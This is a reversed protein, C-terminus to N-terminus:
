LSIKLCPQWLFRSTLQWSMFCKREWWNKFFTLVWEDGDPCIGTTEDYKTCYIDPSYSFTGDRKKMPRRRRQNLFHWHFCTFPRHQQCKHQLFLECQQTRFEKLYRCCFVFSYILPSIIVFSYSASCSLKILFSVVWMYHHPKETQVSASLADSASPMKNVIFIRAACIRQASPNGKRIPRKLWMAPNGGHMVDNKKNSNEMALMEKSLLQQKKSCTLANLQYYSWWTLDAFLFKISFLIKFLLWQIYNKFFQLLHTTPTRLFQFCGFLRFSLNRSCIAWCCLMILLRWNQQHFFIWTYPSVVYGRGLYPPM